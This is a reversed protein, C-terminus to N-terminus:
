EPSAVKAQPSVNSEQKRNRPQAIESARGAVGHGDRLWQPLQEPSIGCQFANTLAAAWRSTTKPDRNSSRRVLKDFVARPNRGLARSLPRGDVDREKLQTYTELVEALYPYSWERAIGPKSANLASGGFVSRLRKIHPRLAKKRAETM